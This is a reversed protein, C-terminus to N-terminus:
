KIEFVVHRQSNVEAFEIFQSSGFDINLYGEGGIIIETQDKVIEGGLIPVFDKEVSEKIYCIGEVKSIAGEKPIPIIDASSRLVLDTTQVTGSGAYGDSDFADNSKSKIASCGSVALFLVVTLYKVPDDKRYLTSRVPAAYRRGLV